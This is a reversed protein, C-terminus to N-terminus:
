VVHPADGRRSRDRSITYASIMALGVILANSTAAKFDGAFMSATLWLSVMIAVINLGLMRARRLWVRVVCPLEDTPISGATLLVGAALWLVFTPLPSWQELSRVYGEVPPHYIWARSLAWLGWLLAEVRPLFSSGVSVRFRRAM